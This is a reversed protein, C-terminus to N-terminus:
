IWFGDVWIFLNNGNPTGDARFYCNGSVDTYSVGAVRQWGAQGTTDVDNPDGSSEGIRLRGSTTALYACAIKVMKAGTPVGMQAATLTIVTGATYAASARAYTKASKVLVLGTYNVNSRRPTLNGTYVIAGGVPVSSTTTSFGSEAVFARPTMVNKAVDQNIRFWTSDMHSFQGMLASASGRWFRLQADVVHSGTESGITIGYHTAIGTTHTLGAVRLTSDATIAGVFEHTPSKYTIHSKIAYLYAGPGSTAVSRVLTINSVSADSGAGITVRVHEDEFGPTSVIGDWGTEFIQDVHYGQVYGGVLSQNNYRLQLSSVGNTAVDSYGTYGSGPGYTAQIEASSIAFGDDSMSVGLSGNDYMNIRGYGANNFIKMGTNPTAFTGSGQYIGGSVGLTAVGVFESTGDILLRGAVTLLTGDWRVYDNANGVSFKYAAGDKGMWIGTGGYVPITAGIAISPVDPNVRIVEVGASYLSLKAGHLEIRGDSAILKEYASIGSYIGYEDVSTIGQLNGFRTRVTDNPVTTVWTRIDTYPSYPDAVTSIIFGDGSVGYDLVTSGTFIIQGDVGSVKTFTYSQEGNALDSYASVTGYVDAVIIGVSRDIHRLRIMDGTSFVPTNPSGPLDFVFLTATNATVFDRSLISLSKTLIETGATALVNDTIFTQAELEDVFLNRFDAYGDHNIQWGTVRGVYTDSRLLGESIIDASEYINGVSYIDGRSLINGDVDLAEEPVSVNVGLKYVSLVGDEDTALLSQTQGPNSSSQIAHTHNNSRDNQSLVSLSGPMKLSITIHSVEIPGGGELGSTGVVNRQLTTLKENVSITLLGPNEDLLCSITSM